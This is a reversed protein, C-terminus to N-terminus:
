VKIEKKDKFVLELSVLSEENVKLAWYDQSAEPVKFLIFIYKLLIILSSSVDFSVPCALYVPDGVIERQEKKALHVRSDPDELCDLVEKSVPCVKSDVNVPSVM